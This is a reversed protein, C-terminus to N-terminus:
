TPNGSLRQSGYGAWGGEPRLPSADFAVRYYERQRQLPRPANMLEDFEGLKVGGLFAYWEDSTYCLM